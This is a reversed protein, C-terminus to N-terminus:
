QFTVVSGQRARESTFREGSGEELRSDLHHAPGDTLCSGGLRRHTCPRHRPSSRPHGGGDTTPTTVRSSVGPRTQRLPHTTDHGHSSRPEKLARKIPTGSLTEVSDRCKNREVSKTAFLQYPHDPEPVKSSKHDTVLRAVDRFQGNLTRPRTSPRSTSDHGQSRTRTGLATPGSATRQTRVGSTTEEHAM